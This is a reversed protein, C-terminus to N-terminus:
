LSSGLHPFLACPTSKCHSPDMSVQPGHVPLLPFAPLLLSGLRWELGTVTPLCMTALRSPFCNSEPSFRSSHDEEIFDVFGPPTALRDKSGTQAISGTVSALSVAEGMGQAGGHLSFTRLLATEGQRILVAGQLSRWAMLRAQLGGAPCGSPGQSQTTARRGRINDKVEATGEM